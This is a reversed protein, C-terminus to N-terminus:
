NSIMSKIPSFLRDILRTDETIIDAIGDMEQIFKLNESYSSKMGQNLEIEAIYGQDEPVLSISKIHGVLLGYETYPFGSLKINVKQGIAIKGLNSSLLYCRAVIRMDETPVVTALREGANVNQNETWYNTLTIKGAIPTTLVYTDFWNTLKAQLLIYSKDAANSLSTIERERQLKLEIISEQIELIKIERNKLSSKFSIMSSKQGIYRQLAREYDTKIVGYGGSFYAISDRQFIGKELEFEQKKLEGQEKLLYLQSQEDKIRRKLTTIKKAILDQEIYNDIGEINKVFDMYNNEASGLTMDQPLESNVEQELWNKDLKNVLEKLSLIDEFSAPTKLVAVIDGNSVLDGDKVFWKSISANTKSKIPIPPNVTTMVLPTSIVLPYKFFYSGVVVMSIILLIVTVGWRVIWRPVRGLIEQVEESFNELSSNPLSPM